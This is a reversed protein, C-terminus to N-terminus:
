ARRISCHMLPEPAERLGLTLDVDLINEEVLGAFGRELKALERAEECCLQDAISPVTLKIALVVSTLCSGHKGRRLQCLFRSFMEYDSLAPFLGEPLSHDSGTRINITLARIARPDPLRDICDMVWTFFDLYLTTEQSGM